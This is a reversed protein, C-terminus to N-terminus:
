QPMVVQTKQQLVRGDDLVLLKLDLIEAGGCHNFSLSPSENSLIRVRVTKGMGMSHSPGRKFIAERDFVLSNDMRECVVEGTSLEVIKTAPIKRGNKLTVNGVAFVESSHQNSLLHCDIKTSRPNSNILERFQPQLYSELVQSEPMLLGTLQSEVLKVEVIQYPNKAAIGGMYNALRSDKSQILDNSLIMKTNKRDVEKVTSKTILTFEYDQGLDSRIHSFAQGVQLQGDVQNKVQPQGQVACGKKNAESNYESKSIKDKRLQWNVETPILSLAGSKDNILNGLTKVSGIPVKLAPDLNDSADNSKNSDSCAQVVLICM